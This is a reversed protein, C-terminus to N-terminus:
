SADFKEMDHPETEWRASGIFSLPKGNDYAWADSQWGMLFGDRGDGDLMQKLDNLLEHRDIGQEIAERFTAQGKRYWDRLLNSREEMDTNYIEDKIFHNSLAKKQELSPIHKVM